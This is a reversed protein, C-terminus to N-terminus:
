EGISVKGNLPRRTPYSDSSTAGRFSGLDGPLRPPVGSEVVNWHGRVFEEPKDLKPRSGPAHLPGLIFIESAFVQIGM